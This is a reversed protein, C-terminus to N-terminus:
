NLSVRSLPLEPQLMVCVEHLVKLYSSAGELDYSMIYSSIIERHTSPTPQIGAEKMMQVFVSVPVDAQQRKSLGSICIKVCVRLWVCACVRAAM